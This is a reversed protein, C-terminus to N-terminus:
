NKSFNMLTDITNVKNFRPKNRKIKIQEHAKKLREISSDKNIKSKTIVETEELQPIIYTMPPYVIQYSKNKSNRFEEISMIGGFMKLCERDPAYKLSINKVNHIKKYLLYLLSVREWKKDNPTNFNYSLACNFSCFCGYVHFLNNKYKSPISCPSNEFQHCCWWCCINTNTIWENYDKSKVFESMINKVTKKIPKDNDYLKYEINKNTKTENDMDIGDIKIREYNLNDDIFIENKKGLNHINMNPEYPKPDTNNINPNYELHNQFKEEDSSKLTTIDIPLNILISDTSNEYCKKKDKILSYIKEKKRGKKDSTINKPKPKRGRKCPIKPTTDINKNRPRGRRSVGKIKNKDSQEIM